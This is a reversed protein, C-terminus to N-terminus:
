STINTAASCETAAESEKGSDGATAEKMVEVFRGGIRTAFQIGWQV